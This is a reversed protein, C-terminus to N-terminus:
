GRAKALARLARLLERSFSVRRDARLVVSMGESSPKGSGAIIRSADIPSRDDRSSPRRDHISECGGHSPIDAPGPAVAVSHRSTEPSWSGEPRDIRNAPVRRGTCERSSLIDPVGFETGCGKDRERPQQGQPIRTPGVARRREECAGPQSRSAPPGQCVVPDFLDFLGVVDNVNDAAIDWQALYPRGVLAETGEVFVVVGGKVDIRAALTIAAPGTLSCPSTKVKTWFYSWTLKISASSDRARRAPM